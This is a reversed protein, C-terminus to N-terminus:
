TDKNKELNKELLDNRFQETAAHEWQRAKQRALILNDDLLSEQGGKMRRKNEYMNMEARVRTTSADADMEYNFVAFGIAASYSCDHAQNYKAVNDLFRQVKIRAKVRVHTFSLICFEDGGVRYIVDKDDFTQKIIRAMDILYQDGAEHGRSDNFQKLDNLDIYYITLSEYGRTNNINAVDLDFTNRSKFGTMSDVNYTTKHRLNSISRFRFIALFLAIASAVVIIIMIGALLVSNARGFDNASYEVALVAIRQGQQNEIPYYFGYIRGYATTLVGPTGAPSGTRNAIVLLERVQEDPQLFGSPDQSLGDSSSESRTSYPYIVWRNKEVRWSLYLHDFDSVQRMYEFRDQLESQAQTFENTYLEDNELQDAIAEAQLVTHIADARRQLSQYHGNRSLISAVFYFALGSGLLLSVVLISVQRDVRSPNGLIRLIDNGEFLPDILGLM